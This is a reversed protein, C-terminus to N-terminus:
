KEDLVINFYSIIFFDILFILSGFVIYIYIYIYIYILNPTYVWWVISDLLKHSCTLSTILTMSEVLILLM